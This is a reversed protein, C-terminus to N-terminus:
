NKMRNHIASHFLPPFTLMILLPSMITSYRNSIKPSKKTFMKKFKLILLWYHWVLRFYIQLRNICYVNPIFCSLAGGMGWGGCMVDGLGGRLVTDHGAGLIDMLISNIEAHSLREKEALKNSEM